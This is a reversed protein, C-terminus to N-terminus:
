TAKTIAAYDKSSFIIMKSDAFFIDIYFLIKIYNDKM